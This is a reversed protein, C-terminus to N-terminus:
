VEKNFYYFTDDEGSKRMCSSLMRLSGENEKYCKAVIHALQLEYLGWNAVAAFAETGYGHYAYEPAIRCGLEAGGRGDFRYLIAEGICKGDLRVAFNVAAHRAFDERTVTLFYDELPEGKWDDHYDYGWYQNREDDLCLANYADKDAETFASLTLRETTLTPIESLAYLENEM